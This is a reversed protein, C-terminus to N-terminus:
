EGENIRASSGVPLMSWSVPFSISPKNWCSFVSPRLMIMTVWLGSIAWCALSIMTKAKLYLDMLIRDQQPIPPPATGPPLLIFSALILGIFAVVIALVVVPLIVKLKKNNMEDNQTM